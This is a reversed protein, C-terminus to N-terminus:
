RSGYKKNRAANLAAVVDETGADPPLSMGSNPLAGFGPRDSGKFHRAFWSKEAKLDDILEAVTKPRSQGKDAVYAPTKGDPEVVILNGDDGVVVRSRLALAAPEFEGPFGDSKYFQDELAKDRQFERFQQEKAAVQQRYQELQPEYKKQLEAEMEAKLQEQQAEWEQQRAAIEMAQRAKEPDLGQFAQLQAQMAKLQKETEKRAEREKVLTAYATESNPDPGGSPPPNPPTATLPSPDGDLGDEARCIGDWFRWQTQHRAIANPLSPELHQVLNRYKPM